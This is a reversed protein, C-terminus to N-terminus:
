SSSYEMTGTSFLTSIKSYNWEPPYPRSSNHMAYIRTLKATDNPALYQSLFPSYNYTSKSHMVKINSFQVLARYLLIKLQSHYLKHLIPVLVTAITRISKNQNQSLQFTQIAPVALSLGANDHIRTYSHATGNNKSRLAWSQKVCVLSMNLKACFTNWTIDFALILIDM